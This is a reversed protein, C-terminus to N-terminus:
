GQHSLSSGVLRDAVRLGGRYLGSVPDLYMVEIDIAYSGAALTTSFSGNNAVTVQASGGNGDVLAFQYVNTGRSSSLPGVGDRVVGSFTVAGAARAQGQGAVGLILVALSIAIVSVARRLM